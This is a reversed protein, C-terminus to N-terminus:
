TVCGVTRGRVKDRLQTERFWSLLQKMIETPAPVILFYTLLFDETYTPDADSNDEMLQAM